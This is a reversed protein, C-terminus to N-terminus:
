GHTDAHTIESQKKARRRGQSFTAVCPGIGLFCTGIWSCGLIPQDSEEESKVEEKDSKEKNEKDKNKKKRAKEAREAAKM